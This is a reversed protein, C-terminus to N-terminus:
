RSRCWGKLQLCSKGSVLNNIRGAMTHKTLCPIFSMKRHLWRQRRCRRQRRQRKPRWAGRWEINEASLWNGSVVVLKLERWNTGIVLSPLWAGVSCKTALLQEKIAPNISSCPELIFTVRYTILLGLIWTDLRDFVLMSRGRRVTM